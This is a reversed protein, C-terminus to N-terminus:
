VLATRGRTALAPRDTEDVTFRRSPKQEGRLIRGGERIAECLEQFAADKM